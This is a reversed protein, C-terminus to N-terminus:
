KLNTSKNFSTFRSIFIFPLGKSPIEISFSLIRKLVKQPSLHSSIFRRFPIFRRFLIIHRSNTNKFNFRRSLTRNDGDLRSKSLNRFDVPTMPMEIQCSTSKIEPRHRLLKQKLVKSVFSIAFQLTPFSLTIATQIRSTSDESLTRNDGDPRSKSLNRFDVQTMPM